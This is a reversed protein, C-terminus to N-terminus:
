LERAYARSEIAASEIAIEGKILDIVLIRSGGVGLYKGDPSFGLVAYFKSSGPYEHEIEGTSISLIRVRGGLSFTALREGDPSYALARIEKEYVLSSRKTWTSVDWLHIVGSKGTAALLDGQPSFAVWGTQGTEHQLVRIRKLSYADLIEISGWTRGIALLRGDSSVSLSRAPERSDRNSLLSDDRLQSWLYRWDWGRLDREAGAPVHSQLIEKVLGRNSEQLALESMRVDAAYQLQRARSENTEALGRQHEALGRQHEAEERQEEAVQKAARERDFSWLALTLGAVLAAVIATGAAMALRNRRVFKLFTYLASPPVASVAEGELYHQVDAAFSTATDYRRTRDKELARMVVWDLDGKLQGRLKEPEERRLQATTACAENSLTSLRTSPRPPEDERIARFVAEQGEAMLQQADFPTQGTLLEYLLVGLAYIDSRTDIDKNNMQAQEPSMYAPTGVFQHFQTFLTLETLRHATVKAIGFDIVKPMPKDDNVTVLINNPKLDLHIIGKQHAHQVASCVDIFVGLRERTTLKNEDCFKTIPIGRVLEMVLYPRGSETTGADLVRAVNPHDMLALAQRESEFRAIVQKTDMGLKIIKLAVKRTVPERQEAMYVAGYGGEGIRELVKYPGIRSGSLDPTMEGDVTPDNLFGKRRAEAGLWRELGDRLAPDEKGIEDLAIAREADSMVSLREFAEELRKLEQPDRQNTAM